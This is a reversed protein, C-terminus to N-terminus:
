LKRLLTQNSPLKKRKEKRAKLVVRSNVANQEKSNM